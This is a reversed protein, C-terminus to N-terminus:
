EPGIVMALLLIEAMAPLHAFETPYQGDDSKSRYRQIHDECIEWRIAGLSEVMGIRLCHDRSLVIGLM